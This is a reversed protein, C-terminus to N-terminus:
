EPRETGRSGGGGHAATAPCLSPPFLANKNPEGPGMQIKQPSRHPDTPYDGRGRTAVGRVVESLSVAVVESLLVAVVESLSLM